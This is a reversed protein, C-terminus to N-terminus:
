NVIRLRANGTRGSPRQARCCLGLNSIAQLLTLARNGIVTWGCSFSTRFEQNECWHRTDALWWLHGYGTPTSGLPVGVHPLKETCNPHSQCEPVAAEVPDLRKQFLVARFHLKPEAAVPGGIVGDFLAHAVELRSVEQRAIHSETLKGIQELALAAPV